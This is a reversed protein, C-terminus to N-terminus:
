GQYVTGVYFEEVGHLGLHVRLNTMGDRGVCHNLRIINCNRSSFDTAYAEAVPKKKKELLVAGIFADPYRNHRQFVFDM